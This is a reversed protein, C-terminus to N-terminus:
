LIIINEGAQINSEKTTKFYKIQPLDKIFPADNSIIDAVIIKTAEDKTKVRPKSLVEFNLTQSVNKTEM